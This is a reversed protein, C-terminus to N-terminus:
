YDEEAHIETSVGKLIRVSKGDRKVVSFREDYDKIITKLHKGFVNSPLAKKEYGNTLCFASYSKYLNQMTSEGKDGITVCEELWYQAPDTLSQYEKLEADEGLLQKSFAGQAELKKYGALFANFIGPLEAKMKEGITLDVNGQEISFKQKFPVILFRRFFGRSTDTVLPLENCSFILKARNRIAYASKYLYRVQLEGGSVLNKFTTTDWLVNPTEETINFLAGDLATRRDPNNMETFSLASYGRKGAVAKIMEIFTSKGNNGVGDLILAKQYRCDNGILAYGGFELLTDKHTQNKGTVDDIFKDFTPAVARADYDYPLCYRFLHDPSHPELAMTDINLVGNKFNVKRSVVGAWEEPDVLETRHVMSKFEEVMHKRCEPKFNVQAFGALKIDSMEEYHTGNFIFCVRETCKYPQKRRFFKLLGEYDPLGKKMVGDKNAHYHYFGTKETRIENPDRLLIPSTVKEYHPCKTCAGWLNQINKCTRPGSSKLAQEIKRETEEYSYGSHGKSITHAEENGNPFRAVISLAAYWEPETVESANSKCYKLFECGQFIAKPDPAFMSSVSKADLSETKEVEPIKSLKVIDFDIAEINSQLLKCEAEPKGPKKNKTGPLRMLRRADWVSPDLKHPLGRLSFNNGLETLLAKYNDRTKSFFNKDVIPTKIGIYFHLGRGSSVIGTKKEDLNWTALFVEIYEPIRSLEIGDIDFWVVHAAHFDRKKETCEAATFFLNYQEKKPIQKLIAPLQAFLEQVSNARYGKDFLASDTECDKGEANVWHRIGMIQIM